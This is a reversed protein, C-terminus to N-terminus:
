VRIDGPREESKVWTGAMAGHRGDLGESHFVSWQVGHQYVDSILPLIACSQVAPHLGVISVRAACGACAFFFLVVYAM